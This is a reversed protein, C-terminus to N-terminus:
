LLLKSVAEIQRERIWEARAKGEIALPLEARAKKM